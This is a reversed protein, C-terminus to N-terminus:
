SAAKPRASFEYAGAAGAAGHCPKAARWPRAQIPNRGPGLGILGPKARALGIGRIYAPNADALGQAPPRRTQPPLKAVEFRFFNGCTIHSMDCLM